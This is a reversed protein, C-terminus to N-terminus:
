PRFISLKKGAKSAATRTMDQMEIDVFRQIDNRIPDGERFPAMGCNPLGEHIALSLGNDAINMLHKLNFGLGHSAENFTHRDIVDDLGDISLGMRKIADNVRAGVIIHPLNQSHAYSLRMIAVNHQNEVVIREEFTSVDLANEDVMLLVRSFMPFYNEVTKQIEPSMYELGECMLEFDSFETQSVAAGNKAKKRENLEFFKAALLAEVDKEVSSENILLGDGDNFNLFLCGTGKQEQRMMHYQAQLTKGCGPTAIALVHKRKRPGLGEGRDVRNEFNLPVDSIFSTGSDIVKETENLLLKMM